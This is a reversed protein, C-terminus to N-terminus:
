SQCRTRLEPRCISLLATAGVASLVILYPLAFARHRVLTGINGTNLAVAILAITAYASFLLTVLADKRLGAAFGVVATALILYWIIQEPLYALEARSQLDWPRPFLVVSIIAREAFRVAEDWNM